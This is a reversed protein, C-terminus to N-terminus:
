CHNILRDRLYPDIDEATKLSEDFGRLQNIVSRKIMFSSTGLYPSRFVDTLTKNSFAAPEETSIDSALQDLARTNGTYCAVVESNQEMLRHQVKLKDLHWCDDSDIFAIYKGSAAQIGRNRASSVGRNKQSLIVLKDSYRKLIDLSRDTSGDNTAIIEFDQFTQRFISDLCREIYQEANYVPVIVSVQKSM